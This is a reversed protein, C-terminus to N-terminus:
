GAANLVGAAWLAAATLLSSSVAAAVGAIWAAGRGAVQGGGELRALVLQVQHLEAVAAQLQGRMEGDRRRLEADAEARGRREAEAQELRGLREEYTELRSLVDAHDSM